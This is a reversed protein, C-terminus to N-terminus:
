RLMGLNRFSRSIQRRGRPARALGFMIEFVAGRIQLVMSATEFDIAAAGM